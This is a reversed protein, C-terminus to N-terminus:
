ADEEKQRTSARTRAEETPPVEPLSGDDKPARRRSYRRLRTSSQTTFSATKSYTRNQSTSAELARDGGAKNGPPPPERLEAKAPKLRRPTFTNRAKRRRNKNNGLHTKQKKLTKIENTRHQSQDSPPARTPPRNIGEPQKPRKLHNDAQKLRILDRNTRHMEGSLLKLTSSLHHNRRLSKPRILETTVLTQPSAAGAINGLPSPQTSVSTIRTAGVTRIM